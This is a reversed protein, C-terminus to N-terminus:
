LKSANSSFTGFPCHVLKECSCSMRAKNEVLCYKSNVEGGYVEKVKDLLSNLGDEIDTSSIEVVHLSSSLPRFTVKAKYINLGISDM